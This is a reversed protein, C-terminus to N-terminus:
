WKLIFGGKLLCWMRGEPLLKQGERQHQNSQLNYDQSLSKSIFLQQQRFGHLRLTMVSFTSCKNSLHQHKDFSTIIKLGVVTVTFKITPLVLGTRMCTLKCSLVKDM